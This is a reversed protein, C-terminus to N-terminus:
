FQIDLKMVEILLVFVGLLFIVYGFLLKLGRNNFRNKILNAALVGVVSCITCSLLFKWNMDTFYNRDGLFGLSTTISIIFLSTAVANRMPLKSTFALAPVILFGGGAGVFGTVIGVGAGQLANKYYNYITPANLNTIKNNRLTRVAAIFILVAFVLMIVSGKNVTIFSNKFIIDPISPLIYRRISYTVFLGPIAFVLGMKYLITNNKINDFTAVWNSIGMIFMSYSTALVSDINFLYVLVPITLIAGGSGILSLIIGILFFLLIGIIFMGM